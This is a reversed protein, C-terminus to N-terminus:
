IMVCAEDVKELVRELLTLKQQTEAKRTANSELAVADKLSREHAALITAVRELEDSDFCLDRALVMELLHDDLTPHPTEGAPNMLLDALLNLEDAELHLQM